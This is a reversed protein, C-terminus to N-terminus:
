RRLSSNIGNWRGDGSTEVTEVGIEENEALFPFRRVLAGAMMNVQM